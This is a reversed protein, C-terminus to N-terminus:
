FMLKFGLQISRAGGSGVQPNGIAVDPSLKSAGFNGGGGGTPNNNSQTVNPGSPLAYQTMNLINFMEFRFQGNFRETFRIQKTVSM